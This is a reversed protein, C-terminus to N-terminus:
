GARVVGRARGAGGAHALAAFGRARQLRGLGQHGGRQRGIASRAVSRAVGPIAGSRWRRRRRRRSRGRRGGCAIWCRRWRRARSATRAGTCRCRASGRWGCRCSASALAGELANRIPTGRPWVVWRHRYLDDWAVKGGQLLPHRPRAVFHIPEMYLSETRMQADQLEPASRGVVIDLESRALQGMLRDMTTELLRVSARPMQQLLQLAALPVTDAASAGSTGVVVLGSGGDRM